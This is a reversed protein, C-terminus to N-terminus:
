EAGNEGAQVASGGGHATGQRATARGRFFLYQAQVKDYDGLDMQGMEERSLGCLRAFYQAEQEAAKMIDTSTPSYKIEEHLTPRRMTVETLLRDALQVPYDLVITASREKSM